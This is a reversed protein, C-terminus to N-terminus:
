AGLLKTIRYNIITPLEVIVWWAKRWALQNGQFANVNGKTLDTTVSGHDATVRDFMRKLARMQPSEKTYSLDWHIKGQFDFCEGVQYLPDQRAQPFIMIIDNAAAYHLYGYNKMFPWIEGTLGIKTVSAGGCGHMAMHVKCNSGATKCNNPYYVWGRRLLGHQEFPVM